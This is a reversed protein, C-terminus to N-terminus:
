ISSAPLSLSLTVDYLDNLPFKAYEGDNYSVMVTDKMGTYYLSFTYNAHIETELPNYFVALGKEEDLYPNVHLIADFYQMDARRLHVIDSILIDRHKKYFSTWKIVVQKVEETDYLRKGRMMAM